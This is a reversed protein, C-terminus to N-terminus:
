DHPVEDVAHDAAVAVAGGLATLAGGVVTVFVGPGVATLSVALSGREYALAPDVLYVGAVGAVLLGAVAAGALTVPRDELAFLVAIGALLATVVGNFVPHVRRVAAVGTVTLTEDFLDVVLSAAVAGVVTVLAGGVLLLRGVTRTV